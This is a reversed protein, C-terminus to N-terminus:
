RPKKSYRRTGAAPSARFVEAGGVITAEVRVRDLDGFLPNGSLVVLDARAGAEVPPAPDGVRLSDATGRAYRALAEAVGIREGAVPHHTAGRLGFLPGAPMVDSSFVFPVGTRLLTAFPNQRGWRARGLRQEYLGGEGGWNRVFNPQMVLPVRLRECRALEEAGIVEAHEVRFHADGAGAADMADLVTRLARDGIAHVACAIGRERCRRLEASLTEPEVLLEGTTEPADAYPEVLAATRGGLSGDSFIKIGIARLRAPDVADLRARAAEYDDAPAHVLAEIRIPRRSRALGDTYVDLSGPDVIDCIAAIGLGHLHAIAADVSEAVADRDPRCLGNAEFVADEVIRGSEADVFRRPSSLRGLLATNAVAVHGCVRRALVPRTASIADLDRRTPLAPDRWESEDFDVGVLPGAGPHTAAHAALTEVVQRAGAVTSLDCRLRRTALSLLHFHSDVFAPLVFARPFSLVRVDDRPSAPAENRGGVAAVHGDRVWITREEFRGPGVWVAAGTIAVPTMDAM